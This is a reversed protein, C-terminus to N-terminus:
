RPMSREVAKHFDERAYALWEHYSGHEWSGNKLDIAVVYRTIENWGDLLYVNRGTCAEFKCIIELKRGQITITKM